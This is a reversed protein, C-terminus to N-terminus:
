TEDSSSLTFYFTAGKGVEGEAWVRGGHRHLIRQVIALGVGTGEYEGQSHLRQFVRFLKDAYQMDFGVGNDKVFYTHSHLDDLDRRWGVEIQPDDRGRSFKLANSLLNTFVQQLLIPDARCFPLDDIHVGALGASFAGNLGAFARRAVEAPDVTQEKVTQRGLRSLVLLDDIM